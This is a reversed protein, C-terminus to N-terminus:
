MWTLASLAAGFVVALWAPTGQELLEPTLVILPACLVTLWLAALAHKALPERRDRRSAWILRLFCLLPTSAVLATLGIWNLAVQAVFAVLLLSLAIRLAVAVGRRRRRVRENMQSPDPDTPTM